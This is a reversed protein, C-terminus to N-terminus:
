RVAFIYLSRFVHDVEIEFLLKIIMNRLSVFIKGISRAKEFSTLKILTDFIFQELIQFLKLSM